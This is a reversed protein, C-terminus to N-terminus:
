VYLDILSHKLGEKSPIVSHNVMPDYYKSTNIDIFITNSNIGNTKIYDLHYKHIKKINRTILSNYTMLVNDIYSYMQNQKPVTYIFNQLNNMCNTKLQIAIQLMEHINEPYKGESEYFREIDHRLKLINNTGKLLLYFEQNNYEYLPLISYLYIIMNADIYLVDLKNKDYIKKIDDKSLKQGSTSSITIKYNIYQYVKSQLTDLKINIIKNNDTLDNQNTKIFLNTLYIAFIMSMLIYVSNSFLDLKTLVFLLIVFFLIVQFKFIKKYVGHERTFLNIVDDM